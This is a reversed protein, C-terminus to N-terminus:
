DALSLSGAHLPAVRLPSRPDFSADCLAVAAFGDRIIM